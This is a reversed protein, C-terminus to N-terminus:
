TEKILDIQADRHLGAPIESWDLTVRVPKRGRVHIEAPLPQTPVPTAVFLAACSLAGGGLRRCGFGQILPKRSESGRVEPVVLLM